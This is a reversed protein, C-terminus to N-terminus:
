PIEFVDVIPGPRALGPDIASDTNHLFPAVSSRESPEGERYPSISGLRRAGRALADALPTVTPDAVNYRKLVVYQVGKSRLTALPDDGLDAYSLYIKDEDLGGTGLWLLRYSPAPWPSVLSGLHARLSEELSERSQALQVSYPQILVTAGDAAHAHVLRTALTRTDEQTFFTVARISDLLAASGTLVTLGAMALVHRRSALAAALHRIALAAM